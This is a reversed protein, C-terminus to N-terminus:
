DKKKLFVAYLITGVILSLLPASLIYININVASIIFSVLMILISAKSKLNMLSKFCSLLIGLLTLIVIISILEGPIAVMLTIMLPALLGFLVILIGAVVASKYRESKVGAEANSCITTSMGGIGAAHGGFVSVISVGIGSSLVVQQFPVEYGNKKLASLSISVENSLIMVAVPISILTITVMDIQPEIFAVAFVVQDVEFSEFGIFLATIFVVALGGFFGPINKIYVQVLFYALVSAALVLVYSSLDLISSLIYNVVIGALMAEIIYNPISTIFDRLFKLQSIVLLLLGAILYGGVMENISFGQMVPILYIATALSHAGILPMRYKLTLVLSILGGMVYISSMWSFLQLESLGLDQASEIIVMGSFSTLLAAIIGTFIHESKIRKMIM